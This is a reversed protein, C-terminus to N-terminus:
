PLLLDLVAESLGLDHDTEETRVSNTTNALGVGHVTNAEVLEGKSARATRGRWYDWHHDGRTLWGEDDVTEIIDM